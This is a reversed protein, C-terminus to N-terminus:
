EVSRSFTGTILNELAVRAQEAAATAQKHAVWPRWVLFPAGFASAFALVFNRTAEQNAPEPLLVADWLLRALLAVIMLMCAILFFSAVITIWARVGDSWQKFPPLRLHLSTWIEDAM